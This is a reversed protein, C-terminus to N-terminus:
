VRFLAGLRKGLALSAIVITTILVLMGIVGLASATETGSEPIDALSWIAKTMPYYERDFALILSDSVELMSRSFVLLGGAILNPALLPATIRGLTRIPGAGLNMAAEELAVSTQELGAACARVVFPIRRVCYAIVLLPMPSRTLPNLFGVPSDGQTLAFYGFAMVLGPVALPLMALGDLIATLPTRRRVALYAIAFGFFMAGVTAIISYTVSNVISRAAVGKSPDGFSLIDSIIGVYHRSTLHGPALELMGTSTISGLIVGLHPVVAALFVVGFPAALLLSGASGLRRLPTSVTAKPAMAGSPRGLVWKGLAFILVSITLLVVVLAYADGQPNTTQLQDFVQVATVARFGVILPTGLETFAWIFVITSGAFVGPRALPLTVRWLRRFFGAGLNQAAEELSPDLNALTAQINLFTIPYLYLTELVICSIFPSALWDIPNAPDILGLAALLSNLGGNRSLMGKLGLAGVFPPLILPVQILALWWRKGAFDFNESILALPFSILLCLITTCSALVVSNVLGERYLPDEFVMSLWFMSFRGDEDFGARVVAFIPALLVLGLALILLLTLLSSLQWRQM